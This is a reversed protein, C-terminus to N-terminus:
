ITEDEVKEEHGKRAERRCHYLNGGLASIKWWIKSYSPSFKPPSAPSFSFHKRPLHTNPPYNNVPFFTCPNTLDKLFSLSLCSFTVKQNSSLFLPPPGQSHALAETEVSLCGMSLFQWCGTAGSPWGGDCLGSASSISPHCFEKKTVCTLCLFAFLEVYLAWLTFCRDAGHLPCCIPLTPMPPSKMGSGRDWKGQCSGMGQGYIEKPFHWQRVVSM